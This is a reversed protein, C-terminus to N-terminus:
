QDRIEHIPLSVLSMLDVEKFNGPAVSYIRREIVLTFYAWHMHKSYTVYVILFYKSFTLSFFGCKM